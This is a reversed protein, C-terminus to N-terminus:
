HILTNLKTKLKPDSPFPTNGDILNGNKFIMYRPISNIKMQKSFASSFGNLMFYSNSNLRLTVNKNKWSTFDEDMSITIFKINHHQYIEKIKELFPMEHICPMCWSAWFDIFIFQDKDNILNEFQYKEGTMDLLINKSPNTSILSIRKDQLREVYDPHTCYQEFRQMAHLFASDKKDKCMNIAEYNAFEQIAKPQFDQNVKLLNKLQQNGYKALAKVKAHYIISGQFSYLRLYNTDTESFKLACLSDLHWKVLPQNKMKFRYLPMCRKFYFDGWIYAKLYNFGQLSIQNKDLYSQLIQIRKAYLVSLYTDLAKTYNSQSAIYKQSTLISFSDFDETQHQIELLANSANQLDSHICSFRLENENISVKCDYNTNPFFLYPTIKKNLNMLTFPKNANINLAIITDTECKEVILEEFTVRSKPYSISLSSGKQLHFRISTAAQSSNILLFAIFLTHLYKM